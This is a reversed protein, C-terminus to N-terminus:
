ETINLNHSNNVEILANINADVPPLLFPNELDTVFEHLSKIIEQNEGKFEVKTLLNLVIFAQTATFSVSVDRYKYLRNPNLKDHNAFMMDFCTAALAVDLTARYEKNIFFIKSGEQLFDYFMDAQYPSFKITIKPTNM